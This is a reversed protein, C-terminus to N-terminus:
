LDTITRASRRLLELFNRKMIKKDEAKIQERLKRNKVSLRKKTM